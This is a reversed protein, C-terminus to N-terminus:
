QRSGFAFYDLLMDLLAEQQGQPTDAWRGLTEGTKPQFKDSKEFHKIPYHRGIEQASTVKASKVREYPSMNILRKINPQPVYVPPAKGAIPQGAMEGVPEGPRTIRRVFPPLNVGGRVPLALGMWASLQRLAELLTGQRSPVLAAEIPTGRLAQGM